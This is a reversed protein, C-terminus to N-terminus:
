FQFYIPITVYVFWVRRIFHYCSPVLWHSLCFSAGHVPIWEGAFRLLWSSIYPNHGSDFQLSTSLFHFISGLIGGIALNLYLESYFFINYNLKFM